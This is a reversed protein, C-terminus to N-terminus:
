HFVYSVPVANNLIAQSARFRPMDRAALAGADDARNASQRACSSITSRNLSDLCDSLANSQQMVASARTHAREVQSACLRYFAIVQLLALVAVGAWVLRAWPSQQIQHVVRSLM